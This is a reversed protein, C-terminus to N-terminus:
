QEGSGREIHRIERLGHDPDGIVEVIDFRFHPPRQKLRAMYRLAARSLVAQKRRNVASSPRGFTEDRRTKVEIFVLVDDKRAVLDLEDRRGVRVRRGLIKYGKARLIREAHREGWLGSKLHDPSSGDKKAGWQWPWKM